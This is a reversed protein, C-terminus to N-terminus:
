ISTVKSSDINTSEVNKDSKEGKVTVEDTKISNDKLSINFRTKM